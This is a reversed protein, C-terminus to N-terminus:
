ETGPMGLIAGDFYGAWAFWYAVHGPLRPLSTGDPGILAAESMRWTAGDAVLEDPAAGREFHRGGAEYARAGAGDPEGILVLDTFGLQDHLIRGGAFADLPWAKVGNPVRVGFVLDKQRLREDKVAAPFMLRPSSFYDHYAVGPGYDRLFGTDLALVKTAPHLRRWSEWSTRVLPLITLAVGSGTLPGVVPRGTFQNWLSGTPRDYMLKNSRYLLGSTGFTFPPERGAARGDFLIGAGCLTCYALSVPVGGVFDNVMEHWNVIRLPYARADGAIEVGFVPDDRNLYTAAEAAIMRPNDLAPIGDVAVGGWFIEELRIEHPVDAGIFRAFAPDLIVLLDALFGAYGPYPHIEPHDQQWVAWDFWQAGAHALTLRELGGVIREREEPLWRLLQILVAVVGPDQTAILADLAPENERPVVSLAQRAARDITAM